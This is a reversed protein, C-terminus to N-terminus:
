SPLTCGTTIVKSTTVSIIKRVSIVLLVAVVVESTGIREAIAIPIPISGKLTMIGAVRAALQAKISGTAVGGLAM